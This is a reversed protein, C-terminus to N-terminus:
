NSRMKIQKRDWLGQAWMPGCEEDASTLAETTPQVLWVMKRQCGKAKPNLPLKQKAKEKRLMRM